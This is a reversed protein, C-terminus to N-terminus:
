AARPRPCGRRAADPATANRPRVAACQSPMDSEIRFGRTRNEGPVRFTATAEHYERPQQTLGRGVEKVLSGVLRRHPEPRRLYTYTKARAGSRACNGTLINLGRWRLVKLTTAMRLSRRLRLRLPVRGHYSEPKLTIQGVLTCCNPRPRVTARQNPLDSKQSLM